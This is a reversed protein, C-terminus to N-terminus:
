FRQPYLFCVELYYTKLHSKHCCSAPSGFDLSLGPGWALFAFLVSFVALQASLMCSQLSFFMDEPFHGQALETIAMHSSHSQTRLYAEIEVSM